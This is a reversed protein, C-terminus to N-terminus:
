SSEEVHSLPDDRSHGEAGECRIVAFVTSLM